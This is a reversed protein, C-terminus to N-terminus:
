AKGMKMKTKRKLPKKILEMNVVKKTVKDENIRFVAGYTGECHVVIPFKM